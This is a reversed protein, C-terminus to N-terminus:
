GASLPAEPIYALEANGFLDSGIPRVREALLVGVVPAVMTETEGEHDVDVAQRRTFLCVTTVQQAILFERYLRKLVGDLNMYRALGNFLKVTQEDPHHNQM